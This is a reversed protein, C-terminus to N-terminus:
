FTYYVCWNDILFGDNWFLLHNPFVEVNWIDITYLYSNTDLYMIPIGFSRSHLTTFVRKYLEINGNMISNNLYILLSICELRESLFENRINYSKRLYMLNHYTVYWIYSYIFVDNLQVWGIDLVRLDLWLWGECYCWYIIGIM